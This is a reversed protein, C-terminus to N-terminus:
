FVPPPVAEDVGFSSSKFFTLLLEKKFIKTHLFSRFSTDAFLARIAQNRDYTANKVLKSPHVGGKKIYNMGCNVLDAENDKLTQYMKSLMNKALYDDADLFIVCEGQAKEVGYLRNKLPCRNEVYFYSIFPHDKQFSEVTEKTGDKSCDDIVLVEYPLSFDQEICSALSRKLYAANDHTPIIISVAVQEM